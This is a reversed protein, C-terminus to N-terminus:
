KSGLACAADVSLPVGRKRCESYIDEIGDPNGFACVFIVAKTKKTIQRRLEGATMNFTGLSVDAFDPRARRGEVANATAPFSFDSIVVEDNVNIGLLALCTTLAATASTVPFAYKAGTYECLKDAFIDVYKGRTLIGSEFIEHFEKEVDEYKIYPKILRIM